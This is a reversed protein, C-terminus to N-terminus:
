YNLWSKKVIMWAAAICDDLDHQSLQADIQTSQSLEIGLLDCRAVREGHDSELFCRTEQSL